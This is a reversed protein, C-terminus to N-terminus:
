EDKNGGELVIYFWDLGDDKDYHYGMETIPIGYYEEPFVGIFNKAEGQVHGKPTFIKIHNYKYILELFAETLLIANM